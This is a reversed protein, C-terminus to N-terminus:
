RSWRKDDNSGAASSRAWPRPDAVTSSRRLCRFYVDQAWREIVGDYSLGYAHKLYLLAVMLRIPLRPRGAPSVGAGALAVTPGFHDMGEVSRGARDRHVFCPALNSEIQAWPMRLALVALPHRLDIMSDLRARFFDSTAM